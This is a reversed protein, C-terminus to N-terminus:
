RSEQNCDPLLPNVEELFDIIQAEIKIHKGQNMLEFGGGPSTVNIETVYGGIMDIGAFYIGQDRLTEAITTCIKHEAATLTTKTATGGSHLNSRYDSAHAIRNYMGVIKGNLICIRKDGKRVAPLYKQAMIFRSENQTLIELLSNRNKDKKNLIIVEQGSSRELPKLVITGQEDSFKKIEEYRKTVITKPIFKPFQFIGIKENFNRLAAPNNFVFSKKPNVLSLIYTAIIYDVSFPPDKRMLIIPFEDLSKKISKGTKWKKAVGDIWTIETVQAGPRYESPGVPEIHLDEVNTMWITHGRRKAEAMMLFSADNKFDLTHIPDIIFLFALKKMPLSYSM